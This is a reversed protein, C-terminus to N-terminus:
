AGDNTTPPAWVTFSSAPAWLTLPNAVLIKAPGLSSDAWANFKITALLLLPKNLTCGLM